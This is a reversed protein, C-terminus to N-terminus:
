EWILRRYRAIMSENGLLGGQHIYIVNNRKSQSKLYSMLARWGMPDYLLDFEIDTQSELDKWLEYNEQYLKGFHHKKATPLIAPWDRKDNSLEAFQKKLYDENGVCACTVVEFTEKLKRLYSNLFLATTGTGAPLMILPNKISNEKCYVQIEHALKEVGHAARKSCGGEPIFLTDNPLKAFKDKIMEGFNKFSGLGSFEIINAGLELAGQYNGNPKSKLWAPIRQVYFELQWKKLKALAAISYLFNSQISGYSIIRRIHPFEKELFYGLKRAKNGSFYPDLLDDRKVLFTRGGFEVRQIPSGDIKM